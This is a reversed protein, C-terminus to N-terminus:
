VTKPQTTGHLMSICWQLYMSAYISLCVSISLTRACVCVCLVKVHIWHIYDSWHHIFNALYVLRFIFYINPQNFGNVVTYKQTNRANM